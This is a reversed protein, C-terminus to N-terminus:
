SSRAVAAVKGASHGDEWAKSFLKERLPHFQIGLEEFLDHKFREHAERELRAYEARAKKFAEEDTSVEVVCHELKPGLTQMLVPKEDTPLQRWCLVGNKYWYKTKFASSPPYAMGVEYSEFNM